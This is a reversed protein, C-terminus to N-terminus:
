DAHKVEVRCFGSGETPGSSVKNWNITVKFNPSQAYEKPLPPFPQSNGILDYVFKQAEPYPARISIKEILGDKKLKLNTVTAVISTTAPYRRLDSSPIRDEILKEYTKPKMGTAFQVDDQIKDTAFPGGVNAKHKGDKFFITFWVYKKPPVPAPINSQVQRIKDAVLKVAVPVPRGEAGIAHLELKGASNLRMVVDVGANVGPATLGELPDLARYVAKEWDGAYSPSITAKLAVVLMSFSIVTKLVIKM